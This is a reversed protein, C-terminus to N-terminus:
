SATVAAEWALMAKKRMPGYYYQNIIGMKRIVRHCPIVFAIRNRAIASAVARVASLKGTMRAVDEYALVRGTPIRILAQWVQIQFNTGTLLVHLPVTRNQTRAFIKEIYSMTEVSELQFNANPWVTKWERLLTGDNQDEIFELRCIGRDTVGIMCDGFPTSHKAYRISLGQGGSKIEGPTMAECNIMLDHLRGPGSLGSDYSANLINQSEALKQKAHEKSLFQMFRKPSIGVWRQFMRQLHFESLGVSRSVEALEPQEPFVGEIFHLAKEIRKYDIRDSM